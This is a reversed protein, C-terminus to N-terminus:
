AQPFALAPRAPPVAFSFTWSKKKFGGAEVSKLIMRSPVDNVFSVTMSVGAPASAKSRLTDLIDIALKLKRATDDLQNIADFYLEAQGNAGQGVFVSFPDFLVWGADPAVKDNKSLMRSMSKKPAKPKEAGSIAAAMEQSWKEEKDGNNSRMIEGLAERYKAATQSYTDHLSQLHSELAGFNDFALVQTAIIL